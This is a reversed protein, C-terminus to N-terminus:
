REGTQKVVANKPGVRGVPKVGPPVKVAGTPKDIFAAVPKSLRLALLAPVYVTVYVNAGIPHTEPPDLVAEIVRIAGVVGTVFKM